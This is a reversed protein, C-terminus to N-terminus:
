ATFTADLDKKNFSLFHLKQEASPHSVWGKAVDGSEM